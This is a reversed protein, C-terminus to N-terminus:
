YNQYLVTALLPIHEAIVMRTDLLQKDFCCWHLSEVDGGPMPMIDMLRYSRDGDNELIPRYDVYAVFLTTFLRHRKTVLQLDHQLDNNVIYGGACELDCEEVVINANKKIARKAADRPSKDVLPNIFGGILRHPQDEYKKGLLILPKEYKGSWNTEVIAINVTAIASNEIINNM